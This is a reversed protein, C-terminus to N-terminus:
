IDQVEELDTLFHLYKTGLFSVTFQIDKIPVELSYTNGVVLLRKNEWRNKFFNISTNKLAINEEQKVFSTSLVVKGKVIVISGIKLEKFDM